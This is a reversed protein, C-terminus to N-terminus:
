KPTSTANPVLYTAAATVAAIVIPEWSRTGYDTSLWVSLAGLVTIIFKNAEGSFLGSFASKM